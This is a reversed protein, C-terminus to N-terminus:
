KYLRDEMLTEENVANGSGPQDEALLKGIALSFKFLEPHNGFGTDELLTKLDPTGFRDIAARAIAANKEFAEGGLEKDNRIDSSWQDQQDNFAKEGDAVEQKKYEAFAATLEGAQDQNLKLNKFIPTIADALGQDLEMGEPMDFEYSEPIEGDSDGGEEDKTEIDGEPTVEDESENTTVDTQSEETGSDIDNQGDTLEEEAM